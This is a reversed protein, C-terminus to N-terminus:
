VRCLPLSFSDLQGGGEAWAAEVWWGVAMEVDDVPGDLREVANHNSDNM